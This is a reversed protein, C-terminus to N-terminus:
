NSFTLTRQAERKKTEMVQTLDDHLDMLANNRAEGRLNGLDSKIILRDGNSGLRIEAVQKHQMMSTRLDEIFERNAGRPLLLEMRGRDVGTLVVTM